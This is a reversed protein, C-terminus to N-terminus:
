WEPALRDKSGAAGGAPFRRACLPVWHLSVSHRTTETEM